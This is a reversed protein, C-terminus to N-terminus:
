AGFRLGLWVNAQDGKRLWRQDNVLQPIVGRPAKRARREPPQVPRCHFPLPDYEITYPLPWERTPHYRSRVVDAPHFGLPGGMTEHALIRTMGQSEAPVDFNPLTRPDYHNPDLLQGTSQTSDQNSHNTSPLSAPATIQAPSSPAAQAASPQGNGAEGDPM